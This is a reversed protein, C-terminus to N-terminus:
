YIRGLVVHQFDRIISSFTGKVLSQQIFKERIGFFALDIGTHFISKLYPILSLCVPCGLQDETVQGCWFPIATEINVIIHPLLQNGSSDRFFLNSKDM